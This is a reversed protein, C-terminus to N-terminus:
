ETRACLTNLFECARRYVGPRKSERPGAINLVAIANSALWERVRTAEHAFDARDLQVLYMPKREGKCIEVTLLTGGTMTAIVLVLSLLLKSRLKMHGAFEQIREFATRFTSPRTAQKEIRGSVKREPVHAERGSPDKEVPKRM